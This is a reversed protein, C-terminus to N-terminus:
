ESKTMKSEQGQSASPMKKEMIMLLNNIRTRTLKKRKRRRRKMKLKMELQVIFEVVRLKIGQCFIVDKLLTSLGVLRIHDDTQTHTCVYAVLKVIPDCFDM